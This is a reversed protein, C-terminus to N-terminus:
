ILSRVARATTSKACGQEGHLCLVPYPGRPRLAQVLWAVLLRWDADGALNVFPRLAEVRGGPEPVPLPALGRPRRFKVPPPAVVRWGDPGVEVASWSADALDLYIRGQHEALRVHVPFEPAEFQAQGELVNVADAVAQGGPAKGCSNYFLRALWRKFGISRLPW